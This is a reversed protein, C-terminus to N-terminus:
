RRATTVRRSFGSPRSAQGGGVGEAFSGVHAGQLQLVELGVGYEDFQGIRFRARALDHDLDAAGARAM